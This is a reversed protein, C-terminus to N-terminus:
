LSSKSVGLGCVEYSIPYYLNSTCNAIINYESLDQYNITACAKCDVLNCIISKM